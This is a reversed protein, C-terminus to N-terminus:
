RIRAIKIITPIFAAKGFNYHLHSKKYSQSSRYVKILKNGENIEDDVTDIINRVAINKNVIIRMENDNIKEINYKKM